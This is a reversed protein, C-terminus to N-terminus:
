SVLNYMQKRARRIRIQKKIKMNWRAVNLFDSFAMHISRLKTKDGYGRLGDRYDVWDNWYEKCYCYCDEIPNVIRSFVRGSNRRDKKTKM